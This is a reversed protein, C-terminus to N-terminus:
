THIASSPADLAHALAGSARDGVATTRDGLERGLALAAARPSSTASLPPGVIHAACTYLHENSLGDKSGPHHRRPSPRSYSGYRSLGSTDPHAILPHGLYPTRPGALAGIRRCRGRKRRHSVSSHRASHATSDPRIRQDAVPEAPSRVVCREISSHVPLLSDGSRSNDHPAPRPQQAATGDHSGLGAGTMNGYRKRQREMAGTQQAGWTGAERSPGTPGRGHVHVCM